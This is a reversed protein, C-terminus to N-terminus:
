AVGAAQKFHGCSNVWIPDFRAPWIAWGKKVGHPNLEVGAEEATKVGLVEDVGCRVHHTGKVARVYACERCNNLMPM